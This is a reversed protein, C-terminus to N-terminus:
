LAGEVLAALAEVKEEQRLINWDVYTLKGAYENGQWRVEIGEGVRWLLGSAQLSAGKPVFQEPEGYKLRVADLVRDKINSNVSEYEGAVLVGSRCTYTVGVPESFLKTTAETEGNPMTAGGFSEPM